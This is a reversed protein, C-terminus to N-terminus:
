CFEGWCERFNEDSQNSDFRLNNGSINGYVGRHLGVVFQIIPFVLDFSSELVITRNWGSFFLGNNSRSTALAEELLTDHFNFVTAPDSTHSVGNM